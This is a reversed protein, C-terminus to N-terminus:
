RPLDESGGQLCLEIRGMGPCSLFVYVLFAVPEKGRPSLCSRGELIDWYNLGHKLVLGLCIAVPSSLM